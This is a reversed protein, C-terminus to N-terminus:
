TVVLACKTKRFIVYLSIKAIDDVRYVTSTHLHKVFSGGAAFSESLSSKHSEFNDFCLQCLLIPLSHFMTKLHRIYYFM